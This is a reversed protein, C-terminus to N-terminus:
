NNLLNIIEYDEFGKAGTITEDAISIIQPMPYDKAEAGAEWKNIRVTITKDHDKDEPYNLDTFRYFLLSPKRTLPDFEVKIEKCSIHNECLLKITTVNGNETKEVTYGDNKFNKSLASFPIPSIALVDKAPGIMIKKAAHDAVAYYKETNVSQQNDNKYYVVDDKKLFDFQSSTNTEASDAPNYMDMSGSLYFQKESSFVKFLDQLERLINKEDDNFDATMEEGNEVKLSVEAAENKKNASHFRYERAFALWSIAMIAIAAFLIITKKM